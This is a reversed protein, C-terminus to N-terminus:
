LRRATPPAISVLMGEVGAGVAVDVRGPQAGAAPDPAGHGFGAGPIMMTAVAGAAGGAGADELGPERGGERASVIWSSCICGVEVTSGAM